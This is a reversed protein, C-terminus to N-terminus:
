SFVNGEEQCLMTRIYGFVLRSEAGAGSWTRTVKAEERLRRCAARQKDREKETRDQLMLLTKQSMYSVLLSLDSADNDAACFKPTFFCFM